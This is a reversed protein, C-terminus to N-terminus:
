NEIVDTFPLGTYRKIFNYITTKQSNEDLPIGGPFLDKIAFEGSWTYLISNVFPNSGGYGISPNEHTTGYALKAERTPYAHLDFACVSTSYTINDISWYADMFDYHLSNKEKALTMQLGM